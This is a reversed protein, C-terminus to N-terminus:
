AALERREEVKREGAVVEWFANWKKALLLGLSKDAIPGEAPFAERIKIRLIQEYKKITRKNHIILLVRWGVLPGLFLMGIASELEDFNGRFRTAATNAIQVLRASEEKSWEPVPREKPKAM